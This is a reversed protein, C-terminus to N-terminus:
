SRPCPKKAGNPIFILLDMTPGNEKGTLFVSVEKRTARGGLANKDESTQKFKVKSPEPTRGYVHTEFLGLVEGRRQKQWQKATKIQAGDSGTLPNPLHTPGSKPNTTIQTRPNRTQIWSAVLLLLVCILRM